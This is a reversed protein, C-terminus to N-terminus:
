YRGKEEPHLPQASSSQPIYWSLRQMTFADREEPNSIRREKIEREIRVWSSSAARLHRLTTSALKWEAIDGEIRLISFSHQRHSLSHQSHQPISGREESYLPKASSPQPIGIDALGWSVLIDTTNSLSKKLPLIWILEKPHLPQASSPEPIYWSMRLKVVEREIMLILPHASSPQPIYCSM